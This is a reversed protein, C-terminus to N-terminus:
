LKKSLILWKEKIKFQHRQFFELSTTNEVYADTILETKGISKLKSSALKLLDSGINQQRYKKSVFIYNIWAVKPKQSSYNKQILAFGILTKDRVCVVGFGFSHKLYQEVRKRSWDWSYETESGFNDKGLLFIPTIDSKKIFRYEM